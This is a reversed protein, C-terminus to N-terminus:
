IKTINGDVVDATAIEEMGMMTEERVEKTIEATAVAEATAVEEATAVAEAEEEQIIQDQVEAGVM